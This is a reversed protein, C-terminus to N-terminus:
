NPSAPLSNSEDFTLVPRRIAATATIDCSSLARAILRMQEAQEKDKSANAAMAIARPIESEPGCVRENLLQTLLVVYTALEEGVVIQPLRFSPLSALYDATAAICYGRYRNDELNELSAEEQAVLRCQKIASDYTAAHAPVMQLTGLVAFATALHLAKYM